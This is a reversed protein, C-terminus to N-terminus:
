SSAPLFLVPDQLIIATVAGSSLAERLSDSSDFAVLKVKGGKGRDQIARLVGEANPECVAFIGDVENQ